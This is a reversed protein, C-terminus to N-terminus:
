SCFKLTCVLTITAARRHVKYQPSNRLDERGRFPDGGYSMANKIIYVNAVASDEGVEINHVYFKLEIQSFSGEVFLQAPTPALIEVWVNVSCTNNSHLQASDFSM